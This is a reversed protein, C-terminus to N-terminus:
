FALFYLPNSRIKRFAGRTVLSIVSYFVM